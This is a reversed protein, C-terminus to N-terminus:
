SSADEPNIKEDLEEWPGWIFYLAKQIYQGAEFGSARLM